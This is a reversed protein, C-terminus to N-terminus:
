HKRLASVRMMELKGEIVVVTGEVAIEVAAFQAEVVKVHDAAFTSLERFKTFLERRLELGM